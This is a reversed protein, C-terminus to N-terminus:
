KGSSGSVEEEVEIARAPCIQACAGCGVCEEEVFEPKGRFTEPPISPEYPYKITYPRSFLSTAAEKLERLKPKRM